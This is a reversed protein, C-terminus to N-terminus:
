RTQDEGLTFSFRAGKGAEGQAWVRGGHRHIIRAVTALGVGTGPFEDESHLRQFTGFLRDAYDMNFGVGNDEVWYVMEEGVAEEGFAILAVPERATYKWANGLLNDLVANLLQEDGYATIHPSISWEVRRAPEAEQLRLAVDRAMTSLELPKRQIASRSLRSLDLLSNIRATMRQAADRLRRLYDNATADLTEGYDEQLARSFGDLSRLPARLDHSVAYSFAEQERNADELAQRQQTLLAENRKRETIDQAIGVIGTPEGHEDRRLSLSLQAVFTEGNKRQLEQETNMEGTEKLAALFTQQRQTSEDGCLLCVNLGLIEERSYGLLGEAGRNWYNIRGELDVALVADHVQEIIHNQAEVDATRRAVLEELRDRHRALEAQDRRQQTIDEVVSAVGVVEGADNLLPTNHWRCTLTRGDRTRNDNINCTGGAQHLLDNWVKLLDPGLEGPLILESLSRGVAESERYGFLREAAPNWAVARMATDWEIVGLPTDHIHRALRQRAARLAQEGHLRQLEASARSAFIKLLAEIHAAEELPKDDMVVILGIPREQEDRLSIGLYSDVGVQALLANDPFRQRLGETYRCIGQELTEGCPGGAIPIHMNAAISGQQCLALSRLLGSQGPEPVAILVLRTDFLRAINLVLERFFAEGTHASVASAVDQIAKDARQIREERLCRESIDQVTGHMDGNANAEGYLALWRPRPSEGALRFEATLPTANGLSHYVQWELEGIDDGHAMDLLADFDRPEETSGLLRLAEPSWQLRRQAAVYHWTGIGGALMALRRDGVSERLASLAQSATSQLSQIRRGLALSMVLALWILGLRVPRIENVPNAPLLDYRVLLVLIIALLLGGWGALFLRATPQGERWAIIGWALIYFVCLLGIPLMLQLLLGLPLLFVAALLAILLGVHVRQALIRRRANKAPPLFHWQFGLIALLALLFAVPLAYASLPLLGAPLLLQLYGDNFAVAATIAAVFGALWAHSADRLSVGLFLNYGLIIVLMGYFLGMALTERHDAAFFASPQWLQLDLLSASATQLRLYLTQTEGPPLNLRFLTRQHPLDREAAPRLNGGLHREFGGSGPTYLDLYHTNPFHQELLWHRLRSTNHVRLRVWYTNETVGFNPIEQKSPRFRDAFPPQSVTKIDLSGGPDELIELWPGIRYHPEGARLLLAMEAANAPAALCLLLLLPLPFFARRCLPLAPMLDHTEDM